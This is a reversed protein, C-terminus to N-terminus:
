GGINSVLFIFFVVVHANHRRDDNARILPRILVMSAGTTGVLPALATGIALIATNVGPSGHLNGGVVIGGAITFLAFLLLVFPIYELLVVHLVADLAVAGGHILALPVLTLAMWFAAIAPMWREWFHHSIQPLLAISLLIGAFPIIWALGIARGDLGAALAPEPLVLLAPLLFAPRSTALRIGSPIHLKM